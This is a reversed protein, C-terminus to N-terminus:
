TCWKYYGKCCELYKLYSRSIAQLIISLTNKMGNWITIFINKISQWAGSWDGNIVQMVAEIINLFLTM